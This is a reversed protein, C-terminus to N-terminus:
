KEGVGERLKPLLRLLEEIAKHDGALRRLAAMEHLMEKRSVAPFGMVQEKNAVDKTVGSRAFVVAQSGITVHDAVGCQSALTVNDKIVTSGGIGVQGCLLSRAGIQVNHAIHVLNDIKTSEGVRTEWLAARDICTNAGIEVDSEIVVTGVQPFKVHEGNRLKYGFGDSGIVAGAHIIVNNGLRVGDYLVVNPHLVCNDGLTVGDGIRCGAKIWCNSGIFTNAGISVFAEITTGPGAVASPDIHAKASLTGCSTKEPYLCHLCTIFAIEPDDVALLCTGSNVADDPTERPVLVASATTTKLRGAYKRNSLFTLQNAGAEELNAASNITQDPNNGLIDAGCAKALERITIAM